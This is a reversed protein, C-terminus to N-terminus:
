SRRRGHVSAGYGVGYGVGPVESDSFAFFGRAHVQPNKTSSLPISGRVEEMGHFREVL